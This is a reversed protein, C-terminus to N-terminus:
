QVDGTNYRYSPVCDKLFKPSRMMHSSFPSKIGGFNRM